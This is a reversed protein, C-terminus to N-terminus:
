DVLGTLYFSAWFFPAAGRGLLELQAGRLADRKNQGDLGAYFKQMLEATAADDVSWYSALLTRAGSYFFGRVLGVVDDGASGKGLGTECASLSVLDANLKLGYIEDVTLLGDYEADGALLLFSKLPASSQFKGHTALHVYAYSGSESRLARESAAVRTLLRANPFNRSIGRAELEAHALDNAAVGTDPNALILVNPSAARPMAELLREVSASPLMRVSHRQLLWNQGDHLAAFPLYHLPSHPVITLHKRLRTQAPRLLRDYLARARAEVDPAMRDISTRFDAIQRSLSQRAPQANDLKFAAADDHNIVLLYLDPGSAFYELLSEDPRLRASVEALGVGQVAVLSAFMPDALLLGQRSADLETLLARADGSGSQYQTQEDLRLYANFQEVAAGALKAPPKERWKYALLDVLARAKAREVYQFMSATDGRRYLVDVLAGYVSQRDAAFGIKNVETDINLRHREIVAVAQRLYDTAAALNGDADALRGLDYLLQWYIEGNQQIRPNGLLKKFREAAEQRHGTELLSKGFMYQRPVDQWLWLNNGTLLAGSFLRDLFANAEFLYDKNLADYAQRYAGLAMFSRALALSKSTKFENSFLGGAKVKELRRVYSWAADREGMKNLAVVLAALSDIEVLVEADGEKEYWDLARGAEGVALAYDGLENASEARLIAAYPTLDEAGFLRGERDGQRIRMELHTLCQKLRRYQKIKHYAFCLGHIDAASARPQDLLFEFRAVLEEYRGEGLLKIQQEGDPQRAQAPALLIGLAVILVGLVGSRGCCPKWIM